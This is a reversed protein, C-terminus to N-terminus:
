NDLTPQTQKRRANQRTNGQRSNNQKRSNSSEDTAGTLQRLQQELQKELAAHEPKGSLNTYQGPDHDMDYLESSGDRYKMYAWRDTRLGHGGSVFSVAADHVTASTNQLVPRLSRGDLGEPVSAGTLDCVTPFLDVLQVLSRSRGAAIGPGAIVLPVRVVQEHLNSKQWFDHDGLHYGHDSTFIILTSDLLQRQELADLVRGLQADMFSVAAYYGSWMRQQNEPYKQLGTSVSNSGSRGAAPIDDLDGKPVDPLVMSRHPYQEFFEPPAVMPYHPRVFGVALLFPDADAGMGSLLEVAKDATRYDPQASGDGDTQVTVFPRHPDGTSQRNEAARTVINLNLCSYEGPSHAEQGPSNFRETWCAEVDEGNTGAIIDGPVRMHFIKGVRASYRGQERLHEGLTVGPRGVFRGRMFSARSPGCVTGQCYAREFVVGRSVLRQLNPTQCFPDGYCSLVGARLDDSVILLVNRIKAIEAAGDAVLPGAALFQLLLLAVM